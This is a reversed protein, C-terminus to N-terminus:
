KKNKKYFEKLSEEVAKLQAKSEEMNKGASMNDECEKKWQLLQKHTRGSKVFDRIMEIFDHLYIGFVVAVITLLFNM